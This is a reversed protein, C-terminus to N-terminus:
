KSKQFINVASLIREASLRRRSFYSASQFRTSPRILLGPAPTLIELQNNVKRSETAKKTTRNEPPGETVIQTTSELAKKTTNMVKETTRETVKKTTNKVKKTTRETVIKTANMVKKTTRDTVIKTTNMVKRITSTETVKKTTNTVNEPTSETMKKNNRNTLEEPTRQVEEPTGETVEQTSKVTFYVVQAQTYIQSKLVVIDRTLLQYGAATVAQDLCITLLFIELDGAGGVVTYNGPMLLKWFEGQSTTNVAKLNDWQVMANAVPEKREDVVLGKVGTHVELLFNLMSDRNERWYQFCFRLILINYKCHGFGRCNRAMRLKAALSRWHSTWATPFDMILTKCQGETPINVNM